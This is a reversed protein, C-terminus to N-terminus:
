ESFIHHQSCRSANKTKGQRAKGYGQGGDDHISFILRSSGVSSRIYLKVLWEKRCKFPSLPVNWEKMSEVEVILDFLVNVGSRVLFVKHLISQYNIGRKAYILSRFGGLGILSLWRSTLVLSYSFDLLSALERGIVASRWGSRSCRTVAGVASSQSSQVAAVNATGDNFIWTELPRHPIPRHLDLALTLRDTAGQKQGSGPICPGSFCM